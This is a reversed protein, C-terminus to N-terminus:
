EFRIFEFRGRVAAPSSAAYVMMGVELTPPLDPRDHSRMLSWAHTADLRYDLSFVSGSRRLRLEGTNSSVPYVIWDSVSDLNSKDESVIPELPGGVGLAAHVYDQDAPTSEPNRAMIGAFRYQPPPPSGPANPDDVTLRTSVTFDGTVLRNVLVGEGGQYWMNPLGGSSPAIDLRGNAVQISALEPHEISWAPGLVGSEFEDDYHALPLLSTGIANTKGVPGTGTATICQFGLSVLATTPPVYGSISCVGAANAPLVALLVYPPLVDLCTAATVCPGAGPGGFSVLWGVSAGPGVGSVSLQAFQGLVLDPVDLTQAFSASSLVFFVLASRIM